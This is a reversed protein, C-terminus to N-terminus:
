YREVTLTSVGSDINIYIKNESEDFNYTQYRKKDIKNFGDLNQVVLVMDGKIMCGTKEPIQIKLTAAGMEIKAKVIKERDGFKLKTTTAGTELTFKSVKYKSLDLEVKAAGVKIDVEWKPIPNLKLQLKRYQSDGLLEFGDHTHRLVVRASNDRYRTKFNFNNYFGSSTGDILKDTTGGISIKGIGTRLSLTASETNERFDEYFTSTSFENKDGSESDFNQQLGFISGYIFLGVFAGALISIIPKLITGKTLIAVGWFVILVPWYKWIENPLLLSFNNKDLLFLVGITLFLFGWFLQGNKYKMKVENMKEIEM